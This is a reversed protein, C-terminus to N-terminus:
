KFCVTGNYGSPLIMYPTESNVKVQTAQDVQVWVCLADALPVTTDKTLFLNQTHNAQWHFWQLGFNNDDRAVTKPTMPTIRLNSTSTKASSAISFVAQTVYVAANAYAASALILIAAIMAKKM